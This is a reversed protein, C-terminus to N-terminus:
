RFKCWKCVVYTCPSGVCSLGGGGAKRGCLSCRQSIAAPRVSGECHTWHFTTEQPEPPSTDAGKQIPPPSEGDKPPPTHQCHRTAPKALPKQACKIRRQPRSQQLSAPGPPIAPPLSATTAQDRNTTPPASTSSRPSPSSKAPSSSESIESMQGRRARCPRQQAPRQCSGSSSSHSPSRGRKQSDLAQGGSVASPRPTLLPPSFGRHQTTSDRGSFALKGHRSFTTLLPLSLYLGTGRTSSSQSRPLAHAPSPGM